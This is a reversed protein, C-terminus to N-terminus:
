TTLAREVLSVSRIGLVTAAAAMAALAAYEPSLVTMAAHTLLVQLTLCGLLLRNLRPPEPLADLTPRAAYFMALPVAAFIGVHLVRVAAHFEPGLFGRILYPAALAITVAAVAALAGALVPLSTLIRLTHGDHGSRHFMRSLRPLLVPSLTGFLSCILTIASTVFGVYGAEGGGPRAAAVVLTPYTFLAPLAMDAPLRKAGYSLLNIFTPEPKGPHPVTRGRVTLMGAVAVVAAGAGQLILFREVSDTMQIAALPVLGLGAGAVVNAHVVQHTGRLAAVTVTCLCTGTLLVMTAVVSSAGGPLGLFRDAWPSLAVGALAFVGAAGAQVAFASRATREAGASTSIRPLYRQLGQVLGGTALPQFTSVVGRAIQYYAFGGVGGVAAVLHFLFLGAGLVFWQVLTTAVYDRALARIM